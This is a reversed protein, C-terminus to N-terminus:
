QLKVDLYADLITLLDPGPEIVKLPSATPINGFKVKVRM